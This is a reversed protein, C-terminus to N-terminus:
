YSTPEILLSAYEKLTLPSFVGTLTKHVFSVSVGLYIRSSVTSIRTAPDWVSQKTPDCPPVALGVQCVFLKATPSYVYTTQTNPGAVAQGSDTADFVTVATIQGVDEVALIHQFQALTQTDADASIGASVAVRTAELAAEHYASHSKYLLGLEITGLMLSVFIPLALAFEVLSQGGRRRRAPRRPTFARRGHASPRVKRSGPLPLIYRNVYAAYAYSSYPALSSFTSDYRRWQAHGM